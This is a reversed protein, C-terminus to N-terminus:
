LNWIENNVLHFVLIKWYLYLYLSIYLWDSSPCNREITINQYCIWEFLVRCFYCTLILSFSKVMNSYLQIVIAHVTRKQQWMETRLLYMLLSLNHTLIGRNSWQTLLLFRTASSQNTRLMDNQTNNDRLMHKSCHLNVFRFGQLLSIM